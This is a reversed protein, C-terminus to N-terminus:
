LKVWNSFSNGYLISIFRKPAIEYKKCIKKNAEHAPSKLVEVVGPFDPEDFFEALEVDESELPFLELLSASSTAAGVPDPPVFTFTLTLTFTSM